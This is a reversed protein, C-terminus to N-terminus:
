FRSRQRGEEYLQTLFSRVAPEADAPEMLKQQVLYAAIERTSRRGDVLALVFAYIRTVLGQTEFHGLRPVPLTPDALWDPLNWAEGPDAAESRKVARFAFTREIRSHRSAPSRMYPLEDERSATVEFGATAICELVEQKSLWQAPSGQSFSLSGFNVWAGGPALLRNIRAAVVGLPQPVIDIFWPTVVADCIGAALPPRLADALVFHLGPRTAAPARLTRAIAYDDLDRPAIPFEWLEVNEGRAIKSAVIQLLPNLDIALTVQPALSQHLDWALRGGGSGAVLWRGRAAGDLMAACIELAAANEAEGWAWDRHLNVYYSMLDQAMPLRTRLALLTERRPADQLRMLPQLLRALCDLHARMADSSRALRRRTTGAPQADAESRLAASQAESERLLLALRQRWDALRQFPEAFLWPVGALLPFRTGCAACAFGDRDSALPAGDCQPCWFPPVTAAEANAM